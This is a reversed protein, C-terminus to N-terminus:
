RLESIAADPALNELEVLLCIPLLVSVDRYQAPTLNLGDETRVQWQGSKMTKIARVIDVAELYHIAEAPPSSAMHSSCNIFM